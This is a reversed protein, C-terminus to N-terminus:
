YLVMPYDFHVHKLNNHLQQWRASFEKNRISCYYFVTVKFAATWTTITDVDAATNIALSGYRIEYWQYNTPLLALPNNGSEFEATVKRNVTDLEIYMDYENTFRIIPSTNRDAFAAVKTFINPACSGRVNIVDYKGDYHGAELRQLM